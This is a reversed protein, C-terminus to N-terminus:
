DLTLKLKRGGSFEFGEKQYFKASKNWQPLPPTNVELRKWGKNKGFAVAKKTLERGIGESRFEQKVYFEQIIGFEGEAYLAYSESLSVFGVPGKENEKFALFIFYNNKEILERCKKTLKIVDINFAVDDMTAIIEDTLEKVMETIAQSDEIVAQQIRLM